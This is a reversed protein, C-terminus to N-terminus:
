PQNNDVLWQATDEDTILTDLYGLALAGKIAERKSKGAAVGIVNPLSKLVNIPTTVLREGFPSNILNGQSDFFHCLIDGVGGQMKVYMFDNNSMDGTKLITAESNMGGIGIVTFSALSVMRTIESVSREEMIASVMEKSSVLLPAPILFLRVNFISSQINPLYISVGGTLSICSIPNKARKALSNLTKGMTDGYGVNIFADPSIRNDIYLAAADAIVNNIESIAAGPSTPVVFSDSLSYTEVISRELRMRRENNERMSIRIVGTEKARDLLRIVKMRSIGLMDSIQQQTKEEFFYLWAVKVVLEDEIEM